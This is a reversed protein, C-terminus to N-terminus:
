KFWDITKACFHNQIWLMLYDLFFYDVIRWVLVVSSGYMADWYRLRPWSHFNTKKDFWQHFCWDFTYLLSWKRILDGRIVSFVTLMTRGILIFGTNRQEWKKRLSTKKCACFVLLSCEFGCRRISITTFTSRPNSVCNLQTWINLTSVCCLVCRRTDRHKKTTDTHEKWIAYSKRKEEGLLLVNSQSVYSIIANKYLSRTSAWFPISNLLCGAHNKDQM